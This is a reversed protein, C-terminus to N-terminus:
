HLLSVVCGWVFTSAINPSSFDVLCTAPKVNPKPLSQNQLISQVQGQLYESSIKCMIFGPGQLRMDRVVPHNNGLRDIVAQALQPPGQVGPPLKGSKKLSAFAAMAASCQYDGFKPNDCKKVISAPMQSDPAVEEFASAFVFQLVKLICPDDMAVPPASVYDSVSAKAKQLAATHCKYYNQVVPPWSELHQDAFKSLSVLICIDAVGDAGGVLHVGTASHELAAALADLKLKSADTVRLDTREMECLEDDQCSSQAGGMLAIAKCMANGGGGLVYSQGYVLVPKKTAKSCGAPLDKRKAVGVEVHFQQAAWVAKLTAPDNESGQHLLVKPAPPLLASATPEKTENGSVGGQKSPANDNANNNNNGGGGEKAAQKKAAKEAKKALKKLESKSPGKAEEAM